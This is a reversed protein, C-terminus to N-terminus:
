TSVHLRLQLSFHGLSISDFPRYNEIARRRSIQRFRFVRRETHLRPPILHEFGREKEPCQKTKNIDTGMQMLTRRYCLALWDRGVQGSASRHIASPRIDSAQVATLFECVVAFGPSQDIEPANMIYLRQCSNTPSNIFEKRRKSTESCSDAPQTHPNRHTVKDPGHVAESYQHSALPNFRSAQNGTFLSRPVAHFLSLGV